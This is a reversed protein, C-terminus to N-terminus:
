IDVSAREITLQLSSRRLQEDERQEVRAGPVPVVEAFVDLCPRAAMQLKMDVGEVGQEIPESCAQRIWVSLIMGARRRRELEGQAQWHALATSSRNPV